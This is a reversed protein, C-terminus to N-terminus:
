QQEKNVLQEVLTLLKKIDRFMQAERVGTILYCTDKFQEQLDKDCLEEDTPPSNRPSISFNDNM